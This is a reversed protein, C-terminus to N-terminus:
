NKLYKRVHSLTFCHIYLSLFNIILPYPLLHTPLSTFAHPSSPLIHLRLINIFPPDNSLLNQPSEQIQLSSNLEPTPLNLVPASTQQLNQARPGPYGYSIRSSLLQGLQYPPYYTQATIPWHMLFCSPLLLAVLHILM